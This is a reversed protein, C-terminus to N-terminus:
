TILERYSDTFHKHRCPWADKASYVVWNGLPITVWGSEGEPGAKIRLNDVDYRVNDRGLLTQVDEVATLTNNWQVARVVPKAVYEYVKIM